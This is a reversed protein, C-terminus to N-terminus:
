LAWREVRGERATCPVCRCVPVGAHLDFRRFGCLFGARGVRRTPLLAYQMFVRRSLYSELRTKARCLGFAVRSNGKADRKMGFLVFSTGDLNKRVKQCGM